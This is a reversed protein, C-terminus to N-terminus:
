EILRASDVRKTRALNEIASCVAILLRPTARVQGALLKSVYSRDVAAAKAMDTVSVDFLEMFARIRRAAVRRGDAPGIPGIDGTERTKVTLGRESLPQKVGDPIM